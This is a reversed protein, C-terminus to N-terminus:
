FIFVGVLLALHGLLPLDKPIATVVGEKGMYRKIYTDLAFSDIDKFNAGPKVSQFIQAYATM